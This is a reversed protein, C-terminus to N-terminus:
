NMHKWGTKVYAYGTMLTLIAAIWLLVSGLFEAYLWDPGGKGLLLLSIAVMQAATKFKALKSVPVGVRIEALFERLGSVLIERCVIAIAPLIDAHEYSVLLILATAVLLKDAIPDLFRGISSEAQWIRAAYGDLWDTISAVIFLGSALYYAWNGTYERLFFVVILAPIVAIRFYTLYNPIHQKNFTM